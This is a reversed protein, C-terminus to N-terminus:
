PREGDDLEKKPRQARRPLEPATGRMMVARIASVQHETTQNCMALTVACKNGDSVQVMTHAVRLM